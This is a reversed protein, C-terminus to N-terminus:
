SGSMDTSSPPLSLPNAAHQLFWPSRLLAAPQAGALAQTASAWSLSFSLPFTSSHPLASPRLTTSATYKMGLWVDTIPFWPWRVELICQREGGGRKKNTTIFGGGWLTLNQLLAVHKPLTARRLICDAKTTQDWASTCYAKKSQKSM